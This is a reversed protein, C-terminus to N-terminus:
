FATSFKVDVYVGDEKNDKAAADDSRCSGEARVADNRTMAVQCAAGEYTLVGPAVVKGSWYTGDAYFIAEWYAAKQKDLWAHAAADLKGGAAKIAKVDIPRDVLLVTTQTENADYSAPHHYAYADVLKAEKAHVVISGYETSSASLPAALAAASLLCSRLFVPNCHM